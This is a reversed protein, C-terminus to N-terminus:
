CSCLFRFSRIKISSLWGILSFPSSPSIEPRARVVGALLDAFFVAQTSAKNFFTLAVLLASREVPVFEALAYCRRLGEMTYRYSWYSLADDAGWPHIPNKEVAYDQNGLYGMRADPQVRIRRPSSLGVSLPFDMRWGRRLDTVLSAGETVSSYPGWHPLNLNHKRYRDFREAM